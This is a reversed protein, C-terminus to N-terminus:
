SVADMKRLPGFSHIEYIEYGRFIYVMKSRAIKVLLGIKFAVKFKTNRKLELKEWGM